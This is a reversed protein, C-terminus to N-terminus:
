GRRAHEDGRGQAEHAHRQVDIRREGHKFFGISGEEVVAPEVRRDDPRRGDNAGEGGLMVEQRREDIPEIEDQIEEGVRRAAWATM